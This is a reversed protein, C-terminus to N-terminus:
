KVFFRSNGDVPIIKLIQQACLLLTGRVFIKPRIQHGLNENLTMLGVKEADPQNKVIVDALTCSRLRLGKNADSGVAYSMVTDTAAITNSIDIIRDTV